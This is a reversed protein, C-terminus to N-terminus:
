RAPAAAESAPGEAALRIDAPDNIWMQPLNKRVVVLGTVEVMKGLYRTEPLFEFREVAMPYVLARFAPAGPKGDMEFIIPGGAVRRVEIVKGRVTAAHKDQKAAAATPVAPQDAGRAASLVGLGWVVLLCVLTTKM